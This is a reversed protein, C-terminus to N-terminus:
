IHHLENCLEIAQPFFIYKYRCYSPYTRQNNLYCLDYYSPEMIIVAHSLPINNIIKYPIQIRLKQRRGDLIEWELTRIM